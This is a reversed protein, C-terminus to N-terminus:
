GQFTLFTLTSLSIGRPEGRLSIGQSGGGNALKSNHIIVQQMYMYSNKFLMTHPM